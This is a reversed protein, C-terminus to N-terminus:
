TIESGTNVGVEHSWLEEAIMCYLVACAMDSRGVVTIHLAGYQIIGVNVNIVAFSQVVRWIKQFVREM